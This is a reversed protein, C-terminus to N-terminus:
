VAFMREASTQAGDCIRGPTSAPAENPSNPSAAFGSAIMTSTSMATMQIPSLAPRAIMRRTEGRRVSPRSAIRREAAPRGNITLSESQSPVLGAIAKLVTSKGSGSEGVIGFTEGAEVHFSVDDVARIPRGANRFTVSLHQVDIM